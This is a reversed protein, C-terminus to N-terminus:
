AGWCQQELQGCSPASWYRRVYGGGGGGGGGGDSAGAGWRAACVPEEEAAAAGRVPCLSPLCGGAAAAAPPAPAGGYALRAVGADSVEEPTACLRWDVFTLFAAELDHASDRSVGAISAYHQMAVRRDDAFKAACVFAALFIRHVNCSTLRIRQSVRDVHVAALAFIGPSCGAYKCLRILFDQVSVGAPWMAEFAPIVVATGAGADAAAAATCTLADNASCVAALTEAIAPLLPHFSANSRVEDWSRLSKCLM